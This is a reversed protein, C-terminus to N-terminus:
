RGLLQMDQMTKIVAPVLTIVIPLLVRTGAKAAAKKLWSWRCESSIASAKGYFCRRL